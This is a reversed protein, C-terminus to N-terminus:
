RRIKLKPNIRKLELICTYTINKCIRCNLNQLQKLKHFSKDTINLCGCCNLDQLQKLEIISIDTINPCYSCNLIQLQKLEIISNDTINKCNKCDLKLLQKLEIISKDTINPCENCNLIQLQTLEIISIDTIKPCENCYLKQLQKLEIISNDTIKPCNSCNLIQLQKLEIISRDTIKQCWSCDLKQLQKLKIISKDTINPCYSCNLIQLQKLEIISKDTINPYEYYNLIRLEQEIIHRVIINEHYCCNLIQLQKLEIISKDTINRCERCNFKQLQKLEIISKDTINQCGMCNLIQLQKLEIISKDTINPCFSCNLEVLNPYKNLLEDSIDSNSMNLITVYACEKVTSKFKKYYCRNNLHSFDKINLDNFIITESSELNFNFSGDGFSYQVGVMGNAYSLINQFISYTCFEDVPEYFIIEIKINNNKMRFGDIINNKCFIDKNDTFPIYLATEDYQKTFMVIETEDYDLLKYNNIFIRINRINKINKCQMFVGNFNGHYPEYSIVNTMNGNYSEKYIQYIKEQHHSEANRQIKNDLLKYQVYVSTELINDYKCEDKFNLKIGLYMYRMSILRIPECLLEDPFKYLITNGIITIFDKVTKKLFDVYYKVTLSGGIFISFSELNPINDSQKICIYKFKCIDGNKPIDDYSNIGLIIKKNYVNYKHQVDVSMKHYETPMKYYKTLNQPALREM